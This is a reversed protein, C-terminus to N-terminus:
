NLHGNYRSSHTLIESFISYGEYDVFSDSIYYKLAILFSDTVSEISMLKFLSQCNASTWPTAFLQDCSLSQSFQFIVAHDRNMEFALLGNLIM